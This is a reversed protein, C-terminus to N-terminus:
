KNSNKEYRKSNDIILKEQKLEKLESVVEKKYKVPIGIMLKTKDKPLFVITYRNIIVYAIDKFDIKFDLQKGRTLRAGSNNITLSSEEESKLEKNIFRQSDYCYYLSMFFYSIM